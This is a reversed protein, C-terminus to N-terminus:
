ELEPLRKKSDRKSARALYNLFVSPFQCTKGPKLTGIFVGVTRGSGPNGVSFLRGETTKLYASCPFRREVTANCAPIAKVQEVTWYNGKPQDDAALAFPLAAILLLLLQWWKPTRSNAMIICRERLYNILLSNVSRSKRTAALKWPKIHDVAIQVEKRSLDSQNIM